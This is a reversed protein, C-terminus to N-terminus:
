VASDAQLNLRAILKKITLGQILISFVAVMYTAIVFFSRDMKPTLSLALAISIGGRLGGWVLISISKKNFWQNFILVPISVSIFRAVLVILIVVCGTLYVSWQHPIILLELGILLFLILNLFDELLEWFASVYRNTKDSMSHKRTISGTALGAIVMAIPGSVTINDAIAYGIMVLTITILIEVKYNDVSRLIFFGIAALVIGLAIGGGTEQLFLLASGTVSVSNQVSAAEYISTFIVIAIGDNFLSEGTIKMEISVPIRMKKLIGLVAIPDTPSILSGFLLCHILPIDIKVLQLFLFLLYGVIIISTFTGILVLALVPKIERKLEAIDVKFAGSFLIFGLFVKM